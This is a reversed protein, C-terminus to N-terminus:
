LSLPRRARVLTDLAHKEGDDSQVTRTVLEAKEVTLGLGSLDSIVDDPSFLVDASPPGGFGNTLNDLSHAIILLTGGPALGDAITRHLKGRAESPLHVYALVILDFSSAVPAWTTLDAEIWSATVNNHAALKAAKELAVSSFDVGTAEWGQLALWVANRGEGCAVDLVSGPQLGEVESVLFQNPTATWILEDGDYRQNWDESNMVLGREHSCQTVAEIM